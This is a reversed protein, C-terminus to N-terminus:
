PTIREKLAHMLIGGAISVNLSEMKKSIPISILSYRNKQVDSTGHSENGLVLVLPAEVNRHAIPQGQADAIFVQMKNRSALQELEKWDGYAIPLRFTAGKASRLAKDNFPDASSSLIFVGDWGLALATRLLTGLNGPDSVGDLALICKKNNLNGQSPIPIEAAICEPNELGTIKKFIASPVFYTTSASISSPIPDQKDVLLTLLPAHAGVEQVLKRGVILATNNINRYARDKRLKVLHKIIPHQLSTIEKTLM